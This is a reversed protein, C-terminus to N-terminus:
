PRPEQKLTRHHRVLVVILETVFHLILIGVLSVLAWSEPMVNKFVLISLALLLCLELVATVFKFGDFKSAAKMGKAM